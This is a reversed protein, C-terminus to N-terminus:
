GLVLCCAVAGVVGIRPCDGSSEWTGSAGIEGPTIEGSGVGTNGGEIAEEGLNVGGGGTVTGGGPDNVGEALSRGVIVILGELGTGGGIASAGWRGAEVRTGPPTAEEVIVLLVLLLGLEETAALVAVEREEDDFAEASDLLGAVTVRGGLGGGRGVNGGSWALEEAEVAAWCGAGELARLAEAGVSAFWDSAALPLEALLLSDSM